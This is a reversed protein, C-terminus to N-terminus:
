ASVAEMAFRPCAEQEAHFANCWRCALGTTTRLADEGAATVDHKDDILGRRLLANIHDHVGNTSSIGMAGGLWRYTPAHGASRADAILKLMQHQRETLPRGVLPAKVRAAAQEKRLRAEARLRCEARRHGIQQCYDCVLSAVPAAALRSTDDAIRGMIMAMEGPTVILVSRVWKALDSEPRRRFWETWRDGGMPRVVSVRWREFRRHLDGEDRETGACRGIPVLVRPNGCQLDNARRLAEQPDDNKVWGIKVFRSQEGTDPDLEALVYIM